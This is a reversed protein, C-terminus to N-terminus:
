DRSVSGFDYIDNAIVNATKAAHIGVALMWSLSFRKQGATPGDLQGLSAALPTGRLPSSITVISKMM